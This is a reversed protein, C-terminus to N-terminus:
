KELKAIARLLSSTVVDYGRAEVESAYPADNGLILSDEEIAYKNSHRLRHTRDRYNGHEVADAVFEVGVQEFKKNVEKRAKPVLDQLDSLDYKM